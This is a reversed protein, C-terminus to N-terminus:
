ERCLALSSVRPFVSGIASVTGGTSSRLLWKWSLGTLSSATCTGVHGGHKRPLNLGLESVRGSQGSGREAGRM